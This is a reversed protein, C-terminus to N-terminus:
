VTMNYPSGEKTLLDGSHLNSFHLIFLHNTTIALTLRWSLSSLETGLLSPSMVTCNPYNNLSVAQASFQECKYTLLLLSYAFHDILFMAQIIKLLQHVYNM